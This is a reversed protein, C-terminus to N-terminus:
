VVSQGLSATFFTFVFRCITELVLLTLQIVTIGIIVEAAGHLFGVHVDPNLGDNITFQILWPRVPSIIALFIALFLSWYFKHKYPAAFYFVRRLLSINLVKKTKAPETM